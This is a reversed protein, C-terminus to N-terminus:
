IIKHHYLVFSRNYLQEARYTSKVSGMKDLNSIRQTTRSRTSGTSTLAHTNSHKQQQTNAHLNKLRPCVKKKQLTKQFAQTPTSPATNAQLLQM